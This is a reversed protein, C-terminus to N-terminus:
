YMKLKSLYLFFSKQKDVNVYKFHKLQYSEIKERLHIKVYTMDNDTFGENTMRDNVLTTVTKFEVVNPHDYLNLLFDEGIDFAIQFTRKSQKTERKCNYICITYRRYYTAHYVAEKVVLEDTTISLIEQNDKLIACERM